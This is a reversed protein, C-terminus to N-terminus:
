PYYKNFWEIFRGVGEHISVKPNYGTLEQLGKIDAYTSAVDGKQMPEFEKIAQIGMSSEIANVFSILSCPSGHGINVLQYLKDSTGLHFKRMLLVISEIVDDIYTFDREMVGWNFLKIPKKKIIKDAFIFPAMDPRGWPGYVTFFRMGISKVGYLKSYVNAMLENSRKTVAYLSAQNDVSDFVNFPQKKNDGYVSSSSAYFLFKINHKRAGELINLFGQINNQIYASPNILSYRVGAQAALHIVIDIKKGQFIEELLHDDCIDGFIFSFNSYKSSKISQNKNIDGKEIGLNVLRDFKLKQEYYDNINDLGIVEGEWFLMLRSILHYGIFGAVGTVLINKEKM